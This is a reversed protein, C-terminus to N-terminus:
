TFCSHVRSHALSLQGSERALRIRVAPVEALFNHTSFLICIHECFSRVRNYVRSRAFRLKMFRYTHPLIIKFSVLIINIIAKSSLHCCRLYFSQLRLYLSRLHVETSTLHYRRRYFASTLIIAIQTLIVKARGNFIM